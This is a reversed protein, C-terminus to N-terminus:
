SADDRETNTAKRCSISSASATKSADAVMHLELEQSQIRGLKV